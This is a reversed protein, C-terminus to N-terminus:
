KRRATAPAAPASRNQGLEAVMRRITAIRQEDSRLEAEIQEAEAATIQGDAAANLIAAVSSAEDAQYATTARLLCDTSPGDASPGPVPIRGARRCVEDLLEPVAAVVRCALDFTLGSRLENRWQNLTRYAQAETLHADRGSIEEALRLLADHGRQYLARDLLEAFTERQNNM